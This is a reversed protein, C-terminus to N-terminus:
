GNQLYDAIAEIAPTAGKAQVKKNYESISVNNDEDLSRYKRGNLVHMIECKVGFSEEYRKEFTGVHLNGNISMDEANKKLRISAHTSKGNCQKGDKDYFRIYLYPFKEVFDKNISKLMKNGTFTLDAM